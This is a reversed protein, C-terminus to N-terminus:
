VRRARAADFAGRLIQGNPLVLLGKRQRGHVVVKKVADLRRQARSAINLTKLFKTAAPDGKVHRRITEAIIAKAQAGARAKARVQTLADAAGKPGNRLVGAALLRGPVSNLSPRQGSRLANFTSTAAAAYKDADKAAALVSAATAYAKASSMSAAPINLSKGMDKNISGKVLQGLKADVKGKSMAAGAAQVQALTPKKPVNFTGAATMADYAANMQPHIQAMVSQRGKKWAPIVDLAANMAAAPAAVLAAASKVAQLPSSVAKKAANVIGSGFWGVVDDGAISSGWKSFIGGGHRRRRRPLGSQGWPFRGVEDGSVRVGTNKPVPAHVTITRVGRPGTIKARGYLIGNKVRYSTEVTFMM